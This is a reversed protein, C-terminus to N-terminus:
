FLRLKIKTNTCRYCTKCPSMTYQVFFFIIPHKWVILCIAWFAFKCLMRIEKTYIPKMKLGKCHVMSKIWNNEYSTFFFNFFSFFIHNLEFFSYKEKSSRLNGMLSNTLKQIMHWTWFLNMVWKHTVPLSHKVDLPHKLWKDVTCLRYGVAYYVVVYVAITSDPLLNWWAIICPHLWM